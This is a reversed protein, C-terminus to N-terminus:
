IEKPNQVQVGGASEAITSGSVSSAYTASLETQFRTARHDPDAASALLPRVGAADITPCVPNRGDALRHPAGPLGPNPLSSRDAKAEGDANRAGGCALQTFPHGNGVMQSLGDDLAGVITALIAQKGLEGLFCGEVNIVNNRLRRPTRRLQFIKGQGADGTRQGLARALGCQIGFGPRVRRKEIRPPVVPAIMESPVANLDDPYCWSAPCTGFCQQHITRADEINTEFFSLTPPESNVSSWNM